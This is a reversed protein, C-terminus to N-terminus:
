RASDAKKYAGSVKFTPSINKGFDNINMGSMKDCVTYSVSKNEDDGKKDAPQCPEGKTTIPFTSSTTTVSEGGCYYCMPTTPSYVRGCIPCQWGQQAFPQVMPDYYM